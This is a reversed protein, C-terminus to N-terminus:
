NRIITIRFTRTRMWADKILIESWMENGYKDIKLEVFEGYIFGISVRKLGQQLNLNYRFVSDSETFDIGFSFILNNAFLNVFIDVACSPMVCM